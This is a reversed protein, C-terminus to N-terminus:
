YHVDYIYMMLNPFFIRNKCYLLLLHKTNDDQLCMFSLACLSSYM